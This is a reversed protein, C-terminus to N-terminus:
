QASPVLYYFEGSQGLIRYELEIYEMEGQHVMFVVAAGKGISDSKELMDQESVDWSYFFRYREHYPLVNKGDKTDVLGQVYKADLRCAYETIIESVQRDAKFGTYCTLFLIDYDKKDLEQLASIYSSFYDMDGVKSQFIFYYYRLFWVALFLYGLGIAIGLATGTRFRGKIWIQALRIVRIIGLGTLIILAPFIINIRNVNVDRTLLGAAVAMLFYAMVGGYRIRSEGSGNKCIQWILDALGILAFVTSTHYMPGFQPPANYAPGPLQLFATNWLSKCNEWLQPFSFNMLLIDNSRVSEEFYQLTFLPTYITKWQFFNIVLVLIEPLAFVLFLAACVAFERIKVKKKLILWIGYGLLFFPITYVSIGYCYFCVAFCIMSFYLYKKTEVGMLLLYFGLLFVHPFLNCDLAWRSQMFHWPNIVTLALLLLGLREDKLKKGLLYMLWMSLLSFLLMPLRISVTSFGFLRICLAQLYCLGASMQGYGWAQLHVPFPVGFRDTGYSALALADMAGMAEDCNVGGPIRGFAILRLVAGLGFILLAIYGYKHKREKIEM